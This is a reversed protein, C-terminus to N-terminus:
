RGGGVPRIELIEGGLIELAQNVNPHSLAEKRQRVAPDDEPGSDPAKATRERTTLTVRTPTGFLRECVGELEGIRSELRQAAVSTPLEIQIRGEERAGRGWDVGPLPELANPRAM